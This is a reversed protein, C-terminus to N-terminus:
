VSNIGRARLATQIASAQRHNRVLVAIDGGNLVNVAEQEALVAQGQQAQNLLLAIQDATDAAAASSMTKKDLTKEEALWVFEVPPLPRDQVQLVPEDPRAADVAVFPIGAYLFPSDVQQFITNV